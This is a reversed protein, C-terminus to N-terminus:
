EKVVLKALLARSDASAINFTLKHNDTDYEVEAGSGAAGINRRSIKAKFSSDQAQLEIWKENEVSQRTPEIYHNVPYERINVFTNFAGKLEPREDLFLDVAASLEVLSVESKLKASRELKDTLKESARNYFSDPLKHEEQFDALAKFLQQVSEGNDAKVVCSIAKKFFEDQSSGKIFRLYSKQLIGPKYEVDFLTLDVLAAQRLADLNIHKSDKPILNADFDFGDKKNVLIILFRGLDDEDPGKYHMFVVNGIRSKNGSSENAENVLRTLIDGALAEFDINESIYNELRAPLSRPSDSYDYYSHFKNKRKFKKEVANILAFCVEDRIPWLDGLTASLKSKDADFAFAGTIAAIARLSPSADENEADENCEPCAILKDSYTIGCEKCEFMKFTGKIKKIAGYFM